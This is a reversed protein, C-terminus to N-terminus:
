APHHHYFFLVKSLKIDLHFGKISKKGSFPFFSSIVHNQYSFPLSSISIGGSKERNKYQM